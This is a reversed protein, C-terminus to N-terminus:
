NFFKLPRKTYNRVKFKKLSTELNTHIVEKAQEAESSKSAKKVPENKLGVDKFSGHESVSDSDSSREASSTRPKSQSRPQTPGPGEM